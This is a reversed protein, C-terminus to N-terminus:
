KRKNKPVYDLISDPVIKKVPFGDFEKRKITHGLRSEIACLNRFNDKAVFSIAEGSAGARGTRGVRHIYDDVKDPLDYNVVRSLEGIDLGRAAIGTAVLFKIAGSKFDSLIRERVVQTRDGHISEAKIGRKALQSVLKAAGHKTEIFILAQDWQHDNILYSLLSSKNGKDVTILWQDIKPQSKRDESLSLEVPKHITRKALSRVDDSITASFLLNQRQEPLREIIKNIDDIFGMDLMRDAEDLVLVELEDFHLARQHAMDLLRGPTAVLIDIGWILRQKQPASDVGGYMAMSSLELYQGYRSISAEVQVALERTPTLILARIRKGRLKRESTLKELIPLVFSATKGTGTQASAILDKGSLIVPIAQKQIKTPTTYNLEAIAKLIPDSLGLTSFPMKQEPM